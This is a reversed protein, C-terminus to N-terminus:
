RAIAKLALAPREVFHWSLAALVLTVAFCVAINVGLPLSPGAVHVITQQVPFAFQYMGYSLDGFRGWGTLIPWPLSAVVLTTYSLALLYPIIAIETGRLLVTVAWLAVVAVNTLLLQAALSWSRWWRLAMRLYAVSRRM